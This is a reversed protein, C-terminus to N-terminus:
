GHHHNESSHEEHDFLLLDVEPIQNLDDRDAKEDSKNDRKECHALSDDCGSGPLGVKCSPYSIHKSGEQIDQKSVCFTTFLIPREWVNQVHSPQSVRWLKENPVSTGDVVCPGCVCGVLGVLPRPM